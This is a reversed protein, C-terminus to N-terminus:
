YKMIFGGQRGASRGDRRYSNFTDADCFTCERSVWIKEEPVGASVAQAMNALPLDLRPKGNKGTHYDGEGTRSIVKELVDRGVEYSCVRIAPGIAILIDGIDSSFVGEMKLLTKKLIGEATGRWGAHVAGIVGAKKDYLLIPVCDAVQIGIAIGTLNTIVADAVPPPGSPPTRLVAIEDAHKQVPYFLNKDNIDFLKAIKTREFGPEKGTFFAKVPLDKFVPPEIVVPEASM